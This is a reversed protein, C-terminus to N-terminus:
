SRFQMDHLELGEEQRRVENRIAAAIDPDVSAIDRDLFEHGVALEETVNSM